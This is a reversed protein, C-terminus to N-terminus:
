GEPRYAAAPVAGSLRLLEATRPGLGLTHAHRLDSPTDVDSRLSPATTTLAVAGSRAHAQASGPGFAPALPQGPASLLLTTGTGHRDATYARRGDAEALAAALDGTRLAPLDAQLAGM